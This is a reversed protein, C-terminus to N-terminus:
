EVDLQSDALADITIMVKAGSGPTSSLAIGFDPGYFLKLREHTNFIGISQEETEGEGTRLSENLRSLQEEQIGAGNDEVIITVHHSDQTGYIKILGGQMNDGLGHEIANEVIPQLTFKPIPISLLSEPVAIEYCFMDSYRLKQLSLYNDAMRLEESLPVCKTEWYLCDRLFSSFKRIYGATEYDDNNYCSISLSQMTNFLFHPNIQSQLAKLEAQKQKIELDKLRLDATYADVILKKIRNLMEGFNKSLIGIEDRSGKELVVELTDNGSVKSMANVLRNLRRSISLSCLLYLLMGTLSVVLILILAQRVVTSVDEMYSENSAEIYLKWGALLKDDSLPTMYYLKRDIVTLVGPTIRGGTITGIVEPGSDGTGVADRDSSSFIKGTPSVLYISLKDLEHRYLSYLIDEPYTIRILTRYRTNKYNSFTYYLDILYKGASGSLNAVVAPPTEYLDRRTQYIDNVEPSLVRISSGNTLFTPNDTYVTLDSLQPNGVRFSSLHASVKPYMEFFSSNDAYYSDFYENVSQTNAFSVASKYFESMKSLINASIQNCQAQREVYTKENSIKIMGNISYFTICFIPIIFAAIYILILKKQISLNMLKQKM